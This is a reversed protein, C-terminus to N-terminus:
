ASVPRQCQGSDEEEAAHADLSGLTLPTAPPSGVFTTPLSGEFKEFTLAAQAHRLGIAAQISGGVAKLGAPGLPMSRAGVFRRRPLSEGGGGNAALLREVNVVREGPTPQKKRVPSLPADCIEPDDVRYQELRPRPPSSRRPSHAHRTPARKSLEAFAADVDVEDKRENLERLEAFVTAGLHLRGTTKM